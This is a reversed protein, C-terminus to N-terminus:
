RAEWGGHQRGAQHDEGAQRNRAPDHEIRDRASPALHLHQGVEALFCRAFVLARDSFDVPKESLIMRLFLLMRLPGFERNPSPAFVTFSITRVLSETSTVAMSANSLPALM